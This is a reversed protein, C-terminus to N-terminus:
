RRVRELTERVQTATLEPLAEQPVAVVGRGRKVLKMPTPAIELELRGDAARAELVQGPRLGLATRLAKPIVVRGAADISSKM